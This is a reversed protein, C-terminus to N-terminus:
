CQGERYHELIHQRDQAHMVWQQFALDPFKMISIGEVDHVGFRDPLKYLLHGLEHAIAMGLFEPLDRPGYPEKTYTTTFFSRKNPFNYAPSLYDGGLHVFERKNGNEIVVITVNNPTDWSETWIHTAFPNDKHVNFEKAIYLHPNIPSLENWYRLGKIILPKAYAKDVTEYRSSVYMIHVPTSPAHVSIFPLYTKVFIGRSIYGYFSLYMGRM